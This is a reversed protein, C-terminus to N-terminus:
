IRYRSYADRTWHSLRRDELGHIGLEIRPHRVQCTVM